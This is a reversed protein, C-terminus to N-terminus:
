TKFMGNHWELFVRAPRSGEATPLASLPQGHLEDRRRRSLEGPEDVDRGGPHPSVGAFLAAKRWAPQAIAVAKGNGRKALIATAM